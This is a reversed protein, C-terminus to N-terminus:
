ICSVVSSNDCKLADVHLSYSPRTDFL